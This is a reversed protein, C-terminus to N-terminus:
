LYLVTLSMAHYLDSHSMDSIKTISIYRKNQKIQKSIKVHRNHSLLYCELHLLFKSSINLLVFSILVSYIWIVLILSVDILTIVSQRQSYQISIPCLKEVRLYLGESLPMQENHMQLHNLYVGVHLGPQPHFAEPKSLSM